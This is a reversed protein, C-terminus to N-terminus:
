SCCRSWWERCLGCCAYTVLSREFGGWFTRVESSPTHVEHARAHCVGTTFAPTVEEADSPTTAVSSKSSCTTAMWVGTPQLRTQVIEERVERVWRGENMQLVGTQRRSAAFRDSVLSFACKWIERWVECRSSLQTWASSIVQRKESQQLIVNSKVPLAEGEFEKCFRGAQM